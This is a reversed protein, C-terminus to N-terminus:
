WDIGDYYTDTRGPLLKCISFISTQIIIYNCQTSQLVHVTTQSHGAQAKDDSQHSTHDMSRTAQDPQGTRIDRKQKNEHEQRYFYNDNM